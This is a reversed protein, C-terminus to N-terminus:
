GGDDGANDGGGKEKGKLAAQGEIGRGCSEEVSLWPGLFPSGEFTTFWTSQREGARGRNHPWSSFFFSFSRGAGKQFGEQQITKGPDATATAFGHDRLREDGGVKERAM